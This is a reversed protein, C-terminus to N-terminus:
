LRMTMHEKAYYVGDVAIARPEVGFTAFGASAYLTRAHVNSATVTLVLQELGSTRAHAIIAAVLARGIGRRALEPQVYMAILTGKHASKRRTERTLGVAGALVDDDFARLICTDGGAALRQETVVLPRTAEEEFSSTFADPHERLGRLRFARYIPADAPTLQRINV